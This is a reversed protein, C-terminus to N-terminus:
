GAWSMGLALIQSACQFRSLTSGLEVNSQTSLPRPIVAGAPTEHENLCEDRSTGSDFTFASLGRADVGIAACVAM